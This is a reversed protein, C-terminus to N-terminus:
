SYEDMQYLYYARSSNKLYDVMAGMVFCSILHGNAGHGDFIGYYKNPGDVICFFNDQNTEHKQGKKCIYEIEREEFIKKNSKLFHRLLNQDNMMSESNYFLIKDM